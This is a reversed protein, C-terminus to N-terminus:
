CGYFRRQVSFDGTLIMWLDHSFDIWCLCCCGYVFFNVVFSTSIDVETYFALHSCNAVAAAMVNLTRNWSSRWHIYLCSVNVILSLPMSIAVWRAFRSTPSIINILSFNPTCLATFALYLYLYVHIQITGRRSCVELTSLYPVHEWPIETKGACGANM